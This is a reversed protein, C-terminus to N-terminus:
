KRASCSGTLAKSSFLGHRVHLRLTTLSRRDVVDALAGAPLALLFVPLSGAVQLLSVLLPSPALDTMLWAAGAQQMLAGINACLTALWFARFIPERLPTWASTSTAPAGQSESDRVKSDQAPKDGEQRLNAM